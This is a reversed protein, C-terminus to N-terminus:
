KRDSIPVTLPINRKRKPDSITAILLNGVVDDDGRVGVWCREVTYPSNLMSIQCSSKAYYTNTPHFFGTVFFISSALLFRKVVLLFLYHDAQSSINWALSNM